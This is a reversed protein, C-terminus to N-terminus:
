GDSPQATGQRLGWLIPAMAVFFTPAASFLAVKIIAEQV